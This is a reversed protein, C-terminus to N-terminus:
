YVETLTFNTSFLNNTVQKYTPPKTIICKAFEKNDANTDPCFLFPIRGGMTLGFFSGMSHDFTYKDSEEEYTFFKNHNNPNSFLTDDVMFSLGVNWVRRGTSGGVNYDHGKQEELTWAPLDGWNPVGLHDVNILTNGGITNTTKFGEYQTEIQGSIEFAHEPEFWRGYSIAGIKLICDDGFISGDTLINLAFGTAQTGEQFISMDFGGIDWISYGSYPISFGEYNKINSVQTQYGDIDITQQSQEPSSANGLISFHYRLQDNSFDVADDSKFNHGLVAAYLGTSDSSTSNNTVLEHLQRNFTDLRSAFNFAFNANYADRDMVFTKLLTPDLTWVKESDKNTRALTVRDVVNDTSTSEYYGKIKFYSALDAYFRPKGITRRAM